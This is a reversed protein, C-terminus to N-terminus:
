YEKGKYNHGNKYEGEFILCSENGYEKIDVGNGEILKGSENKNKPNYFIGKWKLGNKYEGKFILNRKNNYEKIDVGNGEVLKGSENKDKPNYFIGNWKLNNKYEGKFNCFKYCKYEKKKLIWICNQVRINNEYYKLNNFIKCEENEKTHVLECKDDYKYINGKIKKGNVFEGDYILDGSYNYIKGKGNKIGKNFDGEFILHGCEDYEKGKGNKIGNKIEGEFLLCGNEYYEKIYGDGMKLEYNHKMNIDYLIGNWRKGYKYNGEFKKTGIIYYEIGRKKFDNEYEGEFVLNDDLDYEKGIGNKKNEKNYNGKWKNDIKKSKISILNFLFKKKSKYKLSKIYDDSYVIENLEEKEEIKFENYFFLENLEGKKNSYENISYKYQKLKNKMMEYIKSKDDCILNSQIIDKSYNRYNFTDCFTDEINNKWSSNSSEEKLDYKEINDLEIIAYTKNELNVKSIGKLFFPSYPFFLVEKENPYTSFSEIDVGQTITNYPIINNNHLKILIGYFKDDTEGIYKKAINEDKTFSLFCRSYFIYSNRYVNMKDIKNKEMKTGYYLYEDESIILSRNSIGEFMMKIFAQYDKGNREYLLKNIWCRFSNYEIYARLLYKIIIEHPINKILLMPNFLEIIKKENCNNILFNLFSVIEKETVKIESMIENYLIPIIKQSQCNISECIFLENISNKDMKSEPLDIFLQNNLNIIFNFCDNFSCIGGLNYFPDKISNLVETEFYYKKKENESSLIICIPM